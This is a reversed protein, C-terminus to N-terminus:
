IIESIFYSCHESIGFTQQQKFVLRPGVSSTLLNEVPPHNLCCGIGLLTSLGPWVSIPSSNDEVKRFPLDHNLFKFKSHSALIM